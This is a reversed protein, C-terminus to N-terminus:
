KVKFKGVHLLEQESEVKWYYLGPPLKEKFIFTRGTIDYTYLVYNGNDAIKLTHSKTLAPKWSFRIFGTLTSDNGPSLAEFRGSRLRSGIMSELNSNVQYRLDTTGNSKSETSSSKATIASPTKQAKKAKDGTPPVADNSKLTETRDKRLSDEGKPSSGKFIFFYASLLLAFTVFIAAIKGAFFYRDRVPASISIPLRDAQKQPPLRDAAEPNKLFLVVDMIKDKCEMCRDVHDLVNGPAEPVRDPERLMSDALMALMEDGVHGSTFFEKTRGM